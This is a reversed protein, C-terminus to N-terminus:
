VLNSPMHAVPCYTLVLYVASYVHLNSRITHGNERSASILPGRCIEGCCFMGALPICPFNDLIPSSDVNPRGFFPLGRGCCSFIFAGFVEGAADSAAMTANKCGNVNSDQKWKRLNDSVNRCSSLAFKPDPVHFRFVDGTKIDFGRIYLYQEDGDLVHHYALSTVSKVKESQFSCKRKKTLGIFLDSEFVDDGLENDLNDLLQRGDLIQDLGERKATLWTSSEGRNVKVSVAKYTPGVAAAGAAMSVHFQIKGLSHSKTKDKAFVLAVAGVSLNPGRPSTFINKSNDCSTYKFRSGESGVIISETSMAYDMKNIVPKMGCHPDGFLIIADPSTCGSVSASYDKIDIVFKDIKPEQTNLLPITDAKLGPVYGVTLLIGPRHREEIGYEPDFREFKVERFENNITDRGIIGSPECTIIPIGRGLKETILRHANELSYFTREIYLIAFHPRIPESLVKEVIAAVADELAPNLSLASSLKPRSLIRGCIYNWTRSVCSAYAFSQAPLKSLIHQLIDQGVEAVGCGASAVASSSADPQFMTKRSM